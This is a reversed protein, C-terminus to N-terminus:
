DRRTADRRTPHHSHSDSLLARFASETNLIEREAVASLRRSDLLERRAVLITRRRITRVTRSEQLSYNLGGSAVFSSLKTPDPRATHISIRIARRGIHAAWAGCRSHRRCDRCVKGQLGQASSARCVGRKIATELLSTLIVENGTFGDYWRSMIRYKLPM